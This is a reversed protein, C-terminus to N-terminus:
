IEWGLDSMSRKFEENPFVTNKADNSIMTQIFRSAILIPKRYKMLFMLYTPHLKFYNDNLKELNELIWIRLQIDNLYFQDGLLNNIQARQQDTLLDFYIYTLHWTTSAMFSAQPYATHRDYFEKETDSICNYTTVTLGFDSAYFTTGDTLFNNFNSDFHQFGLQGLNALTDFLGDMVDNIRHTNEAFWDRYGLCHPIWELCLVIEYPASARDRLMLDINQDNNWYKINQRHKAEDITENPGSRELIRHHYMLPIGSVKGELAWNTTCTHAHLERFAGLGASNLGYNYFEPLDYINELSHGNQFERETVTIKKAFVKNGRFDFLHTSGWGDGTKSRELMESLEKDSVAALQTSLEFYDQNRV